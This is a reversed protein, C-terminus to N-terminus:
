EKILKKVFTQHNNTINILYIGNIFHSIDVSLSKLQKSDPNYDYVIKGTIDTIIISKFYDTESEIIIEKDAPLPYVKFNDASIEEISTGTVNIYNTKIITDIGNSNAITLTVEYKGAKNFQVKPNQSGNNTGSIFSVGTEPSISWGWAQPSGTSLDTFNVTLPLKGTTPTASFSATPPNAILIYDPIMFTDSGDTNSVILRVSYKGVSSFKMSPNQSSSTTSNIYTVGTSPTVTWAWSTPTYLSKDTFKVTLTPKGFSKDSVFSADPYNTKLVRIYNTKILSDIGFRNRVKLKVSYVGVSDFKLKISKSSSNTSNIYSVGKSPTITWSFTEGTNLSNEWIGTTLPANGVTQSCLYDAIPKSHGGNSTHLLTGFTGAAWGTLSDTFCITYLQDYTASNQTKWTKGNFEVIGGYRSAIWGHLTDTMFISQFDTSFYDDYVWKKGNYKYINGCDSVVWGHNPDTFFVSTLFCNTTFAKAASWSTGNYTLVTGRDGVAYGHTADLFFVSLLDETTPSTQTTWSTGDYKLIVGDNGVAWGNSNNILAVGNLSSLTPSTKLSWSTGNYKVITGINGVAWGNNVDTFKVSNLNNNAGSAQVSWSTGDYKLIKGVTGVAWGHTADVFYLSLLANVTFNSNAFSWSTGSFKLIQGEEGVIWGHSADTFCISYGFVFTPSSIAKWSSGDYSFISGKEGVAWGHTADLMYVSRLTGFNVSNTVTWKSGNYEWIENEGVAWGHLPDTFFISNMDNSSSISVQTWKVGNYKLLTGNYGVAWGNNPDTFFVENLINTLGSNQEKWEIGNYHYIKGLGGVCWGNDPSLFFLSGHSDSTNLVTEIKGNKYEYITWSSTLWGHSTDSFYASLLDDKLTIKKQYWSTGNYFMLTGNNGVAWGTNQDIFGVKNLNNGQPLPNVWTWQANAIFVGFILGLLTVSIKKM